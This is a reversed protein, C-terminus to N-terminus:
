EEDERVRCKLMRLAHIRSRRSLFVIEKVKQGVADIFAFASVFARLASRLMRPIIHPRFPFKTNRERSARQVSQM